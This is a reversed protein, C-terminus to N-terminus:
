GPAPKTAKATTAKTAAKTTKSTAKAAAKTSKTSRTATKGAPTPKDAAASGNSVRDLHRAPVAHDHVHAEGTHETEFNQHPYHSHTLAVHDHEHQHRSSLHDFGGAVGNHNHTVHYHPHNHVIADHSHEEWADSNEHSTM